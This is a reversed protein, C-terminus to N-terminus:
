WSQQNQLSRERVLTTLRPVAEDWPGNIKTKFKEIHVLWCPCFFVLALHMGGYVAAARWWYVLVVGATVLAALVVTVTFSVESHLKIHQCTFPLLVFATLSYLIQAFQV